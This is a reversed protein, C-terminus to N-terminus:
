PAPATAATEPAQQPATALVEDMPAALRGQRRRVLRQGLRIGPQEVAHYAVWPLVLVGSVFVGWRIFPAANRLQVFAYWIVVNHLLYCGYSYTAIQKSARTVWSPRADGVVLLALALALCFIWQPWPSATDADPQWFLAGLAILVIPWLWAPATPLRPGRVRFAHFLVGAMFCPGFMLVNVRWLGPVITAHWLLGGAVSLLLLGVVVSVGRRAALWCLPLVVYMQVELPLTWLVSTLDPQGALNQVLLLNTAVTVWHPNAYRQLLGAVPVMPPIRLALVFLITAVSLPYIRFARRLYFSGVWGRERGTRELSSLLVVSTHVFFALVGVRGLWTVGRVHQSLLLHFGLVSSVALARLLDLNHEPLAVSARVTRTPM